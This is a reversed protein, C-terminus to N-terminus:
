GDSEGEERTADVKALAEMLEDLPNGNDVIDGTRVDVKDTWGSLHTACKDLARQDPEVLCIRVGHEDREVQGDKDRKWQGLARDVQTQVVAVAVKARGREYAERCEPDKSLRRELASVTVGLFGAINRQSVQLGALKELQVLDIPVLKPSKGDVTPM